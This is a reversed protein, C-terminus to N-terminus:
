ANCENWSWGYWNRNHGYICDDVMTAYEGYSNPYFASFISLVYDSSQLIIKKLILISEKTLRELSSQKTL